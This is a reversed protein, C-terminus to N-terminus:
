SHMVIDYCMSLMTINDNLGTQGYALVCTNYGDIAWDVISSGITEHVREQADCTSSENDSWLCHDYSFNRAWCNTDKPGRQSKAKADFSLPDWLTLSNASSQEIINRHGQSIEKDSLPRVRVLIRIKETSAQSDEM